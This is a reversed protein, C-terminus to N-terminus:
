IAITLGFAVVLTVAATVLRPHAMLRGTRSTTAGSSREVRWTGATERLLDQHRAQQLAGMTTPHYM